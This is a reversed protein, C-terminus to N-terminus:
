FPEILLTLEDEYTDVPAGDLNGTEAFSVWIAANDTACTAPAGGVAPSQNTIAAAETVDTGDTADTDNDFRVGFNVTNAPVTQGTAVFSTSATATLSSITIDYAGTTSYVCFPENGTADSGPTYTLPIANLNQIWVLDPVQVTVDVSGTSTAGPVAPNVTAAQVSGIAFIGVLTGAALGKLLLNKLNEM